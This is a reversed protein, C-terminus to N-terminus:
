STTISSVPMSLGNSAREGLEAQGQRLIVHGKSIPRWRGNIKKLGSEATRGIHAEVKRPYLNRVIVAEDAEM